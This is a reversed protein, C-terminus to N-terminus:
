QRLFHFPINVTGSGPFTWRRVEGEICHGVVGDNGTATASTVQGNSGVVIQVTENVSSSQTQIREWCNRKVGAQHAAMVAQVQESKLEPMAGGGSPDPGSTPGGGLNGLLDKIGPDAATGNSKGTTTRNGPGGSAVKVPGADPAAAATAATDTPSPNANAAPAPAAATPPPAPAAASPVQVVVQPAPKVLVIAATIGFAGALVIMAIATFPPPKKEPVGAAVLPPGLSLPAHDALPAGFPEVSAGHGGVHGGAQGLAGLAGLSGLSGQSPGGEPQKFPSAPAFPDAAVMAVASSPEEHLREATALRSTFPVVNSRATAPQPALPANGALPAGFPGSPGMQGMQPGMQQGMQGTQPAYPSGPRPPRPAIPAGAPRTSGPRAPPGSHSPRTEPPPPTVLSMRGGAAAERVLAALEAVARVPRWEEMGEQWCLSEETVVGIAGKRRMEAVRIPGVPVGNIAVYWEDAASLERLDLAVSIEDERQSQVNRHFAGALNGADQSRPAGPRAGVTPAPKPANSLSTALSRGPRPIKGGDAGHAQGSGGAPPPETPIKSNVSTETVAARVEISNGCKRCKMRVTRGAVKDDAIQYKAKCHECLFKV